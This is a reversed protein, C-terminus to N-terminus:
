DGHTKIDIMRTVHVSHDFLFQHGDDEMHSRDAGKYIVNKIGSAVIMKACNICPSLTVYMTSNDDISKSLNLISNVEAHLEHRESWISHWNKIYNKKIIEDYIYENILERCRETYADMHKLLRTKPIEIAIHEVSEPLFITIINNSNITGNNIIQKLAEDCHIANKPAGNYGASLIKNDKSVILAGVKHKICTSRKAFVEAMELFVEHWAPRM